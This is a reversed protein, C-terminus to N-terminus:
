FSDQGVPQHGHILQVIALMFKDVYPLHLGQCVYEPLQGKLGDCSLKCTIEALNSSM